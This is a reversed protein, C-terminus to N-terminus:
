TERLFRQGLLEEALLAVLRLHSDSLILEVVARMRTARHTEDDTTLELSELQELIRSHARRSDRFAAELLTRQLGTEGFPLVMARDGRRKSSYAM